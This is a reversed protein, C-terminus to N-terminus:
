GLHAKDERWEGGPNSLFTLRDNRLAAPNVDIIRGDPKAVFIADCARFATGITGRAKPETKYRNPRYIRILLAFEPRKLIRHSIKPQDAFVAMGAPVSFSILRAIVHVLFVWISPM